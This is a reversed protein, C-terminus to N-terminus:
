CGEGPLHPFVSVSASVFLFMVKNQKHKKKFYSNQKKHM